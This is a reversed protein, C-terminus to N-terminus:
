RNQADLRDAFTSALGTADNLEVCPRLLTLHM